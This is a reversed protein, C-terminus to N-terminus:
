RSLVLVRQLVGDALGERNRAYTRTLTSETHERARAHPVLLRKKRKERSKSNLRKKKKRQAFSKNTTQQQQAATRSFAPSHSPLNKPSFRALAGCLFLAGGKRTQQTFKQFFFADVVISSRSAVFVLCVVSSADVEAERDERLPDDASPVLRPPFIKSSM